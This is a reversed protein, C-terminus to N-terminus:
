SRKRHEQQWGQPQAIEHNLQKTTTFANTLGRERAEVAQVGEHHGPEEATNMSM